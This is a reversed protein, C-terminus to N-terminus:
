YALIYAGGRLGDLNSDLNPQADDQTTRPVSPMKELKGWRVRLNGHVGRREVGKDVNEFFRGIENIEFSNSLIIAAREDEDKEFEEGPKGVDGRDLAPSLFM